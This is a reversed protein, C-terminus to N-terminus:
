KRKKEECKEKRRSKRPKETKKTVNEKNRSAKM